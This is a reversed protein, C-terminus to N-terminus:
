KAEGEGESGKTKGEDERRNARRRKVDGGEKYSRDL